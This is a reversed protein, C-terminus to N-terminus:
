HEGASSGPLMDRPIGAETALSMFDMKLKELAAIIDSSKGRKRREALDQFDRDITAAIPIPEDSRETASPAPEDRAAALLANFQPLTVLTDAASPEDRALYMDRVRFFHPIEVGDIAVRVGFCGASDVGRLEVVVATKDVYQDMDDSWNTCGNVARHRDLVVTSGVRINGYGPLERGCIKDVRSQWEKGEMAAAGRRETDKWLKGVAEDGSSADTASGDALRMDRIRFFHPVEIGGVSVLAGLCGARDIGRLQSIVAIKGVYADMASTWNERGDVTSHRGLIVGSGVQFKGYLAPDFGLCRREYETMREMREM